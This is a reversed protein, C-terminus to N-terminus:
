QPGYNGNEKLAVGTQQPGGYIDNYEFLVDSSWHVAVVNAGACLHTADDLCLAESAEPTDNGFVNNRILAHQIHAIEAGTSEGSDVRSWSWRMGFDNLRNDEIIVYQNFNDTGGYESGSYGFRLGIASTDNIHNRRFIFHDYGNTPNITFANDSVTGAQRIGFDQIITYSPDGTISMGANLQASTDGSGDCTTIDSVPTCNGAEYGDLTVPNGSTGDFMSGQPAITTTFAGSFYFTDGARNTTLANFEAASCESGAVCTGGAGAQTVYWDAAMGIAPFCLLICIAILKKIGAM